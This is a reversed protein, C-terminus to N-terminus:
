GVRRVPQVELREGKNLRKGRWALSLMAHAQIEIATESAICPQKGGHQHQNPQLRRSMESALSFGRWDLDGSPKCCSSNHSTLVDIKSGAALRTDQYLALMRNSSEYPAIHVLSRHQAAKCFRRPADCINIYETRSCRNKVADTKRRKM